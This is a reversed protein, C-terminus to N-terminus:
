QPQPAHQMRCAICQEHEPKQCLGDLSSTDRAPRARVLGRVQRLSCRECQGYWYAVMLRVM